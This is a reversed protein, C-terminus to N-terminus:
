RLQLAVRTGPTSGTTLFLRDSEVGENLLITRVAEARATALNALDADEVTFTEKLRAEMEALPPTVAALAAEIEPDAASISGPPPIDPTESETTSRGFGLARFFRRLAGPRDQEDESETSSPRTEAPRAASPDRNALQSEADVVLQQPFRELFWRRVLQERVEPPLAPLDAELAAAPEATAPEAAPAPEQSGSATRTPAASRAQQATWRQQLAQEFRTQQLADRDEPAWNGAIDVRLAPRERLAHAVGRLEELEAEPVASQGAGFLVQSPDAQGGGSPLLSGLLAFPSTAARQLMNVLVRRIVRGFRFEPDSLNGEIPLNVELKGSRDTLLAIALNVPLKTADPSNSPAGLTFQHLQLVNSAQLAENELQYHVDLQLQGRELAYGAYKAIYPGAAHLDVDRVNVRVDAMGAPHLPNIRGSGEVHGTENVRARLTAEAQDLQTSDLRGVTVNIQDITSHAAPQLSHDDFTVKADRVQLGGLVIQPRDKAAEPAPEAAAPEAPSEAPTPAGPEAETAPPEQKLLTALNLTGDQRILVQVHAGALEVEGVELKQAEAVAAAIDRLALQEFSLLPSQDAANVISFSSVGAAGDWSLRSDMLSTGWLVDLQGNLTLTGREIQLPVFDEIYPSGISLPFAELTTEAKVALPDLQFQGSLEAAGDPAVRVRAVVTAPSEPALTLDRVQVTELEGTVEAPRAAAEDRWAFGFDTLTFEDVRVDPPATDEVVPEEATAGSAAGPLQGRWLQLLDLSGDAHRQVAVRGGKVAASRLHVSLPSLQAQLGELVVDPLELAPEEAGEAVLALSEVRISADSLEAQPRNGELAARYRGQLSVRGSPFGGAIFANTYAAYKPLLIGEIQFEGSSQLPVTTVDGQWHVRENSETVATFRYPAADGAATTFNELAFAMPGVSTAFHPQKSLDEFHLTAGNVTLYRVQLARPAEDSAPEAKAARARDLLDAINLKGDPQVALRGLWDSVELRRFVYADRWLSSIEFNVHLRSWGVLPQGDAELVRVDRSTVALAFPNIRIPGIEVPRGLEASMRREMSRPLIPALGFWLWVLFAVLVALLVKWVRARLKQRREARGREQRSEQISRRSVAM